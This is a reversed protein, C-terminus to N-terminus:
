NEARARPKRWVVFVVQAMQVRAATKDNAKRGADRQRSDSELTEKRACPGTHNPGTESCGLGLFVFVRQSPPGTDGALPPFIAHRLL